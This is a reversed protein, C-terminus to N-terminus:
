CWSTGSRTRRVGPAADEVLPRQLLFIRLHLDDPILLEARRPPIPSYAIGTCSRVPTACLTPSALNRAARPRHLARLVIRRVHLFEEPLHFQSSRRSLVEDGVECRLSQSAPPIEEEPM